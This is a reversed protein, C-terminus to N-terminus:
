PNGLSSIIRQMREFHSGKWYIQQCSPCQSFENYYLRTLPELRDLITEKAVPALLDNCRICRRFPRIWELLNFRRVVERLQDPPNLSRVLCGATVAKRMLLRRDRSLLIRSERAATDALEPDTTDAHYTCDFGLMRL